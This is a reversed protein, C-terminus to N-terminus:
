PVQVFDFSVVYDTKGDARGFPRYACNYVYCMMAIDQFVLYVLPNQRIWLFNDKMTEGSPTGSPISDWSIEGNASGMFGQFQQTVLYPAGQAPVVLDSVESLGPDIDANVLCFSRNTDTASVVWPMANKVTLDVTPNATSSSGLGFPAKIVTQVEYTATRRGPMMRDTWRYWQAVPEDADALAASITFMAKVGNITRFINFHSLNVLTGTYQWRVTVSPLPANHTAQINVPPAAGSPTWTFDQIDTQHMPNGVLSVKQTNDWARLELRYAGGVVTIIGTPVTHTLASSYVIGSDYLVEPGTVSYVLLQYAVQTASNTWTVTPTPDAHTAGPSTINLTGPTVYTFQAIDSWDSWLGSDNKVRVRWYRVQGNTLATFAPAPSPPANLDLSQTGSNVQTTDYYPSSLDATDDIQVQYALLPAGDVTATALWTLVPKTAGVVANNRPALDSPKRPPSTYTIVLSMLSSLAADADSGDTPSQTSYFWHDAVAATGSVRWGYWAEGAVVAAVHATVDFVMTAGAFARTLTAVQAGVSPEVGWQMKDPNFSSTLKHIAITSSTADASGPTLRLQASVITSGTPLMPLAFYVYSRANSNVYLRGDRSDGTKITSLWTAVANRLIIQTPM